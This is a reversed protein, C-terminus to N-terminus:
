SDLSSISLNKKVVLFHYVQRQHRISSLTSLLLLFCFKRVEPPDPPRGSSYSLLPQIHYLPLPLNHSFSYANMQHFPHSFYDAVDKERSTFPPKQQPPVLLYLLAIHNQIALWLLPLSAFSSFSLIFTKIIPVM